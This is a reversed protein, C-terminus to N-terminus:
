FQSTLNYIPTIISIVIFGVGLGLVVMMLPEIATTLGKIADESEQEFYAAVKTLVEGVKGTQEGVAIMQIVVSPYEEFRELSTTLPWGKEVGKAAEKISREFIVNSSAGSVINLAEIIPVGSNILMALTGTIQTLIVKTTLNGVIPVKLIFRDFTKKGTTTQRWRKFGYFLGGLAIFVLYWFSSVFSSVAILIKTPLPLDASMEQYMETLRPVVYIMMIFTVIFMGVIVLSPYILAGKVKRKFAEQKELSDALQNLVEDLKGATEGSKVLSLYINSFINPYASLAQHFSSGGEIKRLVGNLVKSMLPSTQDQLISLSNNLTLGAHIMTALQRTFEVIEKSSVGKLNDLFSLPSTKQKERLFFVILKKNHLLKLADKESRAEVAGSVEKGHSTKAKYSYKQM